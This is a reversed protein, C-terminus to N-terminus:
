AVHVIPKGNEIIPTHDERIFVARDRPKPILLSPMYAVHVRLRCERSTMVGSMTRTKATMKEPDENAVNV